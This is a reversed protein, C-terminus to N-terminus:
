NKDQNHPGDNEGLLRFAEGYRELIHEISKELEKKREQSLPESSTNQNFDKEKKMM